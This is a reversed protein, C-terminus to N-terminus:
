VLQGPRLSVPVRVMCLARTADKWTVANVGCEGREPIFFAIIRQNSLKLLIPARPGVPGINTLPDDAHAPAGAVTARARTVFAYRRHEYVVRAQLLLISGYAGIV